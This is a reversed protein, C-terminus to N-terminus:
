KNEMKMELLKMFYGGVVSRARFNLVEANTTEHWDSIPIRAPTENAYEWVPHVLAKFDAENDTLTATWLIWDSKTYTKRSDLPLGYTRQKTLYFDIEKDMVSEPFINLDLIDDWALNYKQSWTGEKGFALTYHDGDAALQMWKQAMSKALETYQKEVDAKGLMGALKGYAALAEIAKVSLNANRALHGAFDDTSLQNAPDFGSKKLYEAWTTLTEWHKKAYDANGEAKAIAAALIVMNGAEEVPMDEGYTQGNAIPYTGLDHAAFPKKWKGSESYYFIGNMMGKVLDPNYILFLPASPYTLDVTNISGNSFNEKSLFLLEGEPSKVITHAAIAQRYVLECLDAYEKGGAKLADQYLKDDFAECQQIVKKYDAAAEALEEEMTDSADLKWWPKLNQHFFQVSYLEDYGLLFVQEEAKSGVKGLPVITSLVLNKGSKTGTSSAKSSSVFPAIAQTAPAVYQIPKDATPVAVYMYGWDIRVNDGKKQLIPQEKTGAKLIALKGSTYQQASVEQEPTNVAINASAGFYLQVEHQAKDNSKVQFSVYSVPRSLLELDKLLLPSTFTATVDIDGCTFQYTTQTADLQVDKQVAPIVKADDKSTQEQVLGADLWRGGATNAVHIALVNGEKKLKKAAADSIPIYEYKNTWGSHRYIEEGNLYVEVNDDHNLKLFLKNLNTDKVPFTRRVWLDDSKWPTKAKQQDDGFPAAGSKWQAADFQPNMWGSAPEAETYQFAYNEEDAAALVTNYTRAEQGLFRYVKGDVKVMGTLAQEEGTWHKTTSKSVDDGFAWISFYPDHTILPYAPARLEQANSALWPFWLLCLVFCIKKM